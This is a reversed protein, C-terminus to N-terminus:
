RRSRAAYRTNEIRRLTIDAISESITERTAALEDYDGKATYHYLRNDQIIATAAELRLREKILHEVAAHLAGRYEQNSIGLAMKADASGNAAIVQIATLTHNLSVGEREHRLEAREQDTV